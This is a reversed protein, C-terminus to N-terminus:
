FCPPSCSQSHLTTQVQQRSSPTGPPFICSCLLSPLPCTLCQLATTLPSPSGLTPGPINLLSFLRASAMDFFPSNIFQDYDSLFRTLDSTPHYINLDGLVLTPFDHQPFLDLPSVSRHHGSPISYANYLRFLNHSTDFLGEPSHFNVAMLDGREYFLSNFLSFM